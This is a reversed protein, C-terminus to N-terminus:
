PLDGPNTPRMVCCATKKCISPVQCHFPRAGTFADRAALELADFRRLSPMRAACERKTQEAAGRIATKLSARVPRRLRAGCRAHRPLVTAGPCDSVAAGTAVGKERAGCVSLTLQHAPRTAATLPGALEGGGRPSRADRTKDLTRRSRTGPTPARRRYPHDRAAGHSASHRRSGDTHRRESRASM